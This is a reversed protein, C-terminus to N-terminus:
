DTMCAMGLNDNDVQSDSPGVTGSDSVQVSPCESQGLGSDSVRVDSRGVDILKGMQGLPACDGVGCVVVSLRCAGRKGEGKKESGNVMANCVASQDGSCWAAHAMVSSGAPQGIVRHRAGAFWHVNRTCGSEAKDVTTAAVVAADGEVHGLCPAVSVRARTVVNWGRRLGPSSEKEQQALGMPVHFLALGVQSRIQHRFMGVFLSSSRPRPVVHPLLRHQERMGEIFLM